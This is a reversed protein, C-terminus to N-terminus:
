VKCERDQRTAGIGKGLNRGKCANMDTAQQSASSHAAGAGAAAWREKARGESWGPM